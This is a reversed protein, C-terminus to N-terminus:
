QACEKQSLDSSSIESGAPKNAPLTYISLAHVPCSSLCEGCGTCKDQDIILTSGGGKQPRFRMAGYECSSDCARCTTGQAELCGSQVQVKLPWALTPDAQEPFAPAVLAGDKCAAACDGCFTCYSNSFDVEPRGLHGEVLLNTPCVDICRSCATCADFFSIEDLSYPPRITSQARDGGRLFARRDVDM